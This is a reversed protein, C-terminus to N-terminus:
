EKREKIVSQLEDDLERLATGITRETAGGHLYKMRVRQLALGILLGFEERIENRFLENSM